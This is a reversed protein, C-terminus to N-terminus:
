EVRNVSAAVSFGDPYRRRLKEINAQMVGGLSLDLITCIAAIYWILDGLEKGVAMMDLDHGHFVHKKIADAVEGAEGALGLAMNALQLQDPTPEMQLGNLTRTSLQQYDSANM